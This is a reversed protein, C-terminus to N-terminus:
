RKNWSSKKPAPLQNAYFIAPLLAVGWIFLLSIVVLLVILCRNTNSPVLFPTTSSSSSFTTNSIEESKIDAESSGSMTIPSTRKPPSAIPPIFYSGKNSSGKYAAQFSFDYFTFALPFVISLVHLHFKDKLSELLWLSSLKVCSLFNFPLILATDKTLHTDACLCRYFCLYVTMSYLANM